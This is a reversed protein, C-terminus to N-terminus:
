GFYKKFLSYKDLSSKYIPKDAQNNSATKIPSKNLQHYNLCDRNWELDCFNFIKKTIDETNKILDEYEIQMMEDSQENWFEIYNDFLKFFRYIEEKDFTWTLAPLYNKFISFFNNNQERKLVLIKSNPFFIRILGIYKFNLLSKDTIIKQDIKYRQILNIYNDYIQNFPEDTYELIRKAFNQDKFNVMKEISKNLSNTEGLSKIQDNTSIIQELLTTGSRPMGCIFIIKKDNVKKSKLNNKEKKFFNKILEFEKIENDINTSNFKKFLNNAKNYFEYAKAYEEKDEYSKGISFFLPIFTQQESKIQNARELMSEFHDSTEVQKYNTLSSIIQDAQTLNPNIKLAQEAHEIAKQKKRIQQYCLSLNYHVVSINKDLELIKLYLNIAVEFDGNDKKINALNNLAAIYKPNRELIQELYSIADSINDQSKLVMAYNMKVVQNNPNNKLVTKFIKEAEDLKSTRHYSMGILNMLYEHNPIKKLLKLSLSIVVDYNNTNFHQLIINVKEQFENKSIM